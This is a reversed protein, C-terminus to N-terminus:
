KYSRTSPKVEEFNLEEKHLEWPRGEGKWEWAAVYSFHEDDRRAESEETQSEERFHCGCSEARNLADDVALEGLEMFDAVRGAYELAQNFERGNGLVRSEKWFRERIEPIKERAIKLGEENRAMGCHDWMVQGLERHFDDV